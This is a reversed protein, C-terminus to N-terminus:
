VVIPKTTRYTFLLIILNNWKKLIGNKQVLELMSVSIDPKYQQVIFTRHIDIFCTM